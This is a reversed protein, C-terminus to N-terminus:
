GTTATPTTGTTGTKPAKYQKCGQIVYSAACDTLKTWRARFSTVFNNLAKQEAERVLQQKISSSVQSLPQQNAPIIKAVDFIYYGFVTKIPGGLANTKASFVAQDLAQEEQGKVVGNLAGGSSKTAPDTSHKSAVSAFSKGSQIERKASEAQAQTKTLIISINRKEASGYSQKHKEYYSTVQAQSVNGAGKVVNKEIKQELMQVKVQLLLDSITAKASSLVSNLSAATPFSAKKITEFRKKVEADSVSSKKDREGEGVVWSYSILSVLTRQKLATYDQACDSKLQSTSPNTKSNEVKAQVRLAAICATYQPPVPVPPKTGLESSSSANFITMWHTLAATTIPTKGVTAVAGKPIGGSGCASLGAGVVFVAGLATLLRMIKSVVSAM